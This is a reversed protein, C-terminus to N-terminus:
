STYSWDTVGTAVRQKSSSTVTIEGNIVDFFAQMAADIVADSAPTGFSIQVSIGGSTVGDDLSASYIWDRDSYTTTL